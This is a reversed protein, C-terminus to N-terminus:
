IGSLLDFWAQPTPARYAQWAMSAIELHDIPSRSSRSRRNPSVRRSQRASLSMRRCCISAELSKAQPGFYDLLWILILQANPEPDIWLEVTDFRECAEILGLDNERIEAPAAASQISGTSDPEQGTRAALFAALEADSRPPGWVMRLEIAVALDAHGASEIGGASSSDATLILRTM